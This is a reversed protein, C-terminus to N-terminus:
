LTYKISASCTPFIAEVIQYGLLWIIHYQNICRGYDLQLNEFMSFRRSKHPIYTTTCIYQSNNASEMFSLLTPFRLKLLLVRENVYLSTSNLKESKPLNIVCFVIRGSHQGANKWNISFLQTIM